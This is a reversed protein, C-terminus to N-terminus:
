AGARLLREMKTLAAKARDYSRDFGGNCHVDLRMTAMQQANDHAARDMQLKLGRRIAEANISKLRVEAAATEKPRHWRGDCWRLVMMTWLVSSYATRFEAQFPSEAAMANMTETATSRNSPWKEQVVTAAEDPACSMLAIVLVSRRWTSM